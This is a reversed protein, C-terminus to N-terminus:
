VVLDAPDAFVESLGRIRDYKCTWRYLNEGVQVLCHSKKRVNHRYLNVVYPQLRQWAGRSPRALFEALRRPGDEYPVVVPVTDDEILRYRAAVEPYNLNARLEQIGKKDLDVVNFLRAFYEEFIEPTHLADAGFRELLVQAEGLGSRYAGSPTKGEAPNFIVVRGQGPLLGERNCRGAAQVIRDLPGVARWVEPFDLDVGAEVVQTSILRVPSGERLRTKVENLVERRHAGCLLTSLHLAAPDDGFANLLSLADQRTNLVVMVQSKTRIEDAVERWTMPTKRYEYRVRKLASFHRPFDPVIERIKVNAFEPVREALEFAPQTATSFIVTAQYHETLQRLADLTPHLLEPPLTQVEDILIVSRALNHLKRARSPNNAFLSEFLQVTTTVILPHDWNESALRLKVKTPDQDEDDPVKLASHHELVAEAGLIERYISATQDIISTYPIAVVVRRLGHKLAHKLAFALGTRTKGGGTPVTLRFFGRPLDAAKLAAHYIERRIRNVPTDSAQALLATQNTEFSKWLTELSPRASRLKASEPDFHAETDLHDADVLASFLLRLFLELDTGKLAPPRPPYLKLNEQQLFYAVEQLAPDNWASRYDTAAIGPDKLGVHHGLIPLSLKPFLEPLDCREIWRCFLLAGWIAHPTKAAPKGEERAKLYDQFSKTAKGLDHFYGLLYALEAAEPGLAKAFTRATQAVAKLHVSLSHRKGQDNKSHAWLTM